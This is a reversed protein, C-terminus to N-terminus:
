IAGQVGVAGAAAPAVAILQEVAIIIRSGSGYTAGSLTPVLRLNTTAAGNFVDRETHTDAILDLLFTGTPLALSGLQRGMRYRLQDATLDYPTQNAGYMLRLRTLSAGDLALAGGAGTIITFLFRCYLDSTPLVIEQDGDGSLPFTWERWQHIYGLYPQAEPDAIPDFYQQNPFVIGNPLVATLNAGNGTYLGSGPSGAVAVFPLFRAELVTEQSQIATQILGVPWPYNALNLGVPIDYAFKNAFAAVAPAATFTQPAPTLSAAGFNYQSDIASIISTMWGSCDFLTAVSNVKLTIRSLPGGQAGLPDTGTPGATVYQGNATVILKLKELYGTNRADVSHPASDNVYAITPIAQDRKRASALWTAM